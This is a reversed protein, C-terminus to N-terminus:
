PGSAASLRRARRRSRQVGVSSRSPTGGGDAPADRYFAVAARSGATLASVRPRATRRSEATPRYTSARDRPSEWMSRWARQVVYRSSKVRGSPSSREAM